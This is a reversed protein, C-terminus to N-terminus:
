SQSKSLLVNQLVAEILLDKKYVYDISSPYTKEDPWPIRNETNLYDDISKGEEPIIQTVRNYCRNSLVIYFIGNLVDLTFHTGTFGPSSFACGSLAHHVESTAPNPCKTYVLKGLFQTAKGNIITGMQKQGIEILSAKSLIKETLLGQALKALDDVTSFLGAHGCLSTSNKKSIAAKKDHPMGKQTNIIQYNGKIIRREFDCSAFNLPNIIHPATSNMNLPVIINEKLYEYYTQGSVSEIVYRLAMASLDNYPRALFADTIPTECVNFLRNEAENADLGNEDIRGDTRMSIRFEMLDKLSCHSIKQFNSCYKGITDSFILLGKEKLQFLSLVTFLKTMSALDYITDSNVTKSNDDSLKGYCQKTYITHADGAAIAIGPTLQQDNVMALAISEIAKQNEELSPSLLTQFNEKSFLSQQTADAFRNQNESLSKIVQEIM